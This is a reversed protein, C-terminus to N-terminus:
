YPAIKRVQWTLRIFNMNLSREHGTGQGVSQRQLVHNLDAEGVEMVLLIVQRTMDVESDHLQIIAPNGRLRKLLAIENAYGDIAKRDLDETKVRKIALVSCDKSLARYVKCSGGKGIVGLKIYPEQNVRIMNSEQILPLFERNVKSLINSADHSTVADYQNLSPINKAPEKVTTASLLHKKHDNAEHKDPPPTQISSKHSTATTPPPHTSRSSSSTATSGTNSSSSSLSVSPTGHSVGNSPVSSQPGSRHQPAHHLKPNDDIISNSTAPSSATTLRKEPDWNWMYDLDMKSLKPKKTPTKHSSDHAPQQKDFKPNKDNKFEDDDSDSDIISQSPDIREAKGLGFTKFQLPPRKFSSSLKRTNGSVKQNSSLLLPPANARLLKASSTAIASETARTSVSTAKLHITQLNREVNTPITSRSEKTESVVGANKDILVDNPGQEASSVPINTGATSTSHLVFPPLETAKSRHRLVPVPIDLASPENSHKAASCSSNTLTTATSAVLPGKLQFQVSETPELSAGKVENDGHDGHNTETAPAADTETDFSMNSDQSPAYDSLVIGNTDGTGATKPINDIRIRKSSTSTNSEVLVEPRRKPSTTTTAPTSAQQQKRQIMRLADHLDIIPEARNQIGDRLISEAYAYQDNSAEEVMSWTIYFAADRPVAAGNLLYSQNQVHRITTRATDKNDNCYRAQVTIYSFWIRLLDRRLLHSLTVKTDDNQMSAIVSTFYSTARRHLRLLDSGAEVAATNSCDNCRIELLRSWASAKQELSSQTSDITQCLNRYEDTSNENIQFFSQVTEGYRLVQIVGNKEYPQQPSSWNHYHSRNPTSMTSTTGSPQNSNTPKAVALPPLSPLSSFKNWQVDSAKETANRRHNPQQNEKQTVTSVNWQTSQNSDHLRMIGPKSQIPPVTLLPTSSPNRQLQSHSRKLPRLPAHDNPHENNTAISYETHSM